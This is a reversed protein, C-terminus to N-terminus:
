ESVGHFLTRGSFSVPEWGALFEAMNISVFLIYVCECATEV